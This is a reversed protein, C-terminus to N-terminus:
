FGYGFSFGYVFVEDGDVFDVNFEPTISWREAIEFEYASGVRLLFNNNGDEDEIDIGPAVLFRWGEYPHLIFPAALIWERFDNGAYEILGGIGFLENLRYEYTFGISFGNEGDDHTNGLFLEVGHRHEPKETIHDREAEDARIQVPMMVLFVAVLLFLLAVKKM